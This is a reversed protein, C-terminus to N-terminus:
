TQVIRLGNEEYRKKYELLTEDQVHADDCMKYEMGCQEWKVRGYDFYPLLEFRVNDLSNETYFRIFAEIDEDSENVGHILPTRVILDNHLKSATILNKRITECSVGTLAKHRTPDPVKYDIMLYDIYPLLEELRNSTGNTEMATNIGSERLKKLLEKVAKFQMTPEGGSLTVGGGGYFMFKSDIALAVLEDNEIEECSLKIGVSRNRPLACERVECKCCYGTNRIGNRLAGHPCLADLATAKNVMLTGNSEFGEPNSCWLCRMNCGQLHIVLRNGPGDQSFNFGRKFVKLKM